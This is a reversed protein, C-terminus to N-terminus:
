VIENVMLMIVIFNYVSSKTRNAPQPEVIDYKKHCKSQVKLQKKQLRIGLGTDIPEKSNEETIM